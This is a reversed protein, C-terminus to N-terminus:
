LTSGSSSGHETSNQLLAIFNAAILKSTREVLQDHEDFRQAKTELEERPAVGLDEAIRNWRRLRNPTIEPHFQVGWSSGIRFAQHRYEEGDALWDAGPPLSTIADMHFSPALFSGDVGKLLPDGAAADRLRVPVLGIEFGTAGMEVTGGLAQALLQAGLCIGLIPVGRHHANRQLSRVDKLWAYNENDMVSLEGGLVLLGDHELEIPIAQGSHPRIVDVNVAAQGLWETFRDLDCKEDCEIVLLTTEANRSKNDDAM